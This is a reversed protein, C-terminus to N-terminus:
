KIIILKKTNKSSNKITLDINNNKTKICPNKSFETDLNLDVLNSSLFVPILDKKSTIFLLLSSSEGNISRKRKEILKANEIKEIGIDNLLDETTKGYVSKSFCIYDIDKLKYNIEFDEINADKFSLNSISNEVTKAFISHVENKYLKNINKNSNSIYFCYIVVILILLVIIKAFKNM